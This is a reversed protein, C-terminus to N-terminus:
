GSCDGARRGSPRRRQGGGGRRNGARRGGSWPSWPPESGCRTTPSLLVRNRGGRSVRFSFCSKEKKTRDAEPITDAVEGDGQCIAAELGVNVLLQAAAAARRKCRM